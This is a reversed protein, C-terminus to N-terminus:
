ERDIIPLSKADRARLTPPTPRPSAPVSADAPGDPPMTRLYRVDESYEVPDEYECVTVHQWPEELLLLLRGDRTATLAVCNDFRRIEELNALPIELYDRYSLETWQM